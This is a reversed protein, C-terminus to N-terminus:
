PDPSVFYLCQMAASSRDSSTEGLIQCWFTSQHGLRAVTEATQRNQEVYFAGRVPPLYRYARMEVKTEDLISSTSAASATAYLISVPFGSM